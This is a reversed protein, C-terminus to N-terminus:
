MARVLKVFADGREEFNKFQDFSACAPSLLVTDGPAAIDGAMAVAKALDGADYLPPCGPVREAAARIAGATAGILLVAKAKGPLAGALADFPIKKDYGGAILVVGGDHSSLTAATRSPSSGISDNYYKVGGIEAVLQNRHPVGGFGRAVRLVGEKSVLGRMATIAALYNEVNHRGKILIDSLPLFGDIMGDRVRDWGFYETRGPGKMRSTYENGGNLVVLGAADQYEFIARKARVYEEMDRHWDLHNPAINTIVATGPSVEMGMLQFSSLEVVCIDTESISGTEPLLPAGINGGAHARIGEARLMEAILTTTTTKGDSGTVGIVPCPCVKLFVEMESTVASGAAKARLFEPADPRAGPTRFVMDGAIDDLYNEGLVFSVGAAEWPAKDITEDKDHVTVRAGCAALLKVLPANSVGLGIVAIERGRLNDRFKNFDRNM